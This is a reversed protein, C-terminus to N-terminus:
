GKERWTYGCGTCKFVQVEIMTEEDDSVFIAWNHAKKSECKPCDARVTPMVRLGAKDQDIVKICEESAQKTVTPRPKNQEAAKEFGCRPCVVANPSNHRNMLRTGCRQCFEM